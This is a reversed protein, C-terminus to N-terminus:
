PQAEPQELDLLPDFERAEILEKAKPTLIRRFGDDEDSYEWMPWMGDAAAKNTTIYCLGCALCTLSWLFKLEGGLSALEVIMGNPFTQFISSASFFKSGCSCQYDRMPERSM